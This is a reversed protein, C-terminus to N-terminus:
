HNSISSGRPSLFLREANTCETHEAGSGVLGFVETEVPYRYISAPMTESSRALAPGWQWLASETTEFSCDKTQPHALGGGGVVVVVLMSRSGLPSACSVLIKPGAIQSCLMRLREAVASWVSPPWGVGRKKILRPLCLDPLPFPNWTPMLVCSSSEYLVDLGRLPM